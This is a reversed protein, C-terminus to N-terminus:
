HSKIMESLEGNLYFSITGKQWKFVVTVGAPGPNTLKAIFRSTRDLPGELEIELTRDPHKVARLKLRGTSIEQFEYGQNNTAWDRDGHQLRTAISGQYPNFEKM